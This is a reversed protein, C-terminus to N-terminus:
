PLGALFAQLKARHGLDYLKVAAYRTVLIEEAALHTRKNGREQLLYLYGGYRYDISLRGM